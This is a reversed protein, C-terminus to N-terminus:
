SQALASQVAQAAMVTALNARYDASAHIDSILGDPSLTVNNASDVTFSKALAV